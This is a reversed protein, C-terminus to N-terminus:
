ACREEDLRDAWWSAAPIGTEREIRAALLGGPGQLGREILSYVPQSIRLLSAVEQQPREGRWTRLEDAPGPTQTTTAM